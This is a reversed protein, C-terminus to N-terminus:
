SVKPVITPDFILFSRSSPAIELKKYFFLTYTTEGHLFIMRTPFSSKGEVDLVSSSDNQKRSSVDYSKQFPDFVDLLSWCRLHSLGLAVERSMFKQQHPVQSFINFLHPFVDRCFVWCINPGINKENEGGKIICSSTYCVCVRARVCVYVYMM